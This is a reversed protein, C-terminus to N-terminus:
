GAGSLARRAGRRPLRTVARFARGPPSDFLPQYAGALKLVFSPVGDKGVIAARRLAFRDWSGRDRGSVAAEFGARRAAAIAAPGYAFFPYAFTRVATGTLDELAARSDRMEAFCAAEDLQSLDPHTVTHAGIEVGAQALERIEDATMMRADSGSLWPNPRGILGTVVYVTAPVGYERLLPLLVSHNDEMGDDFSLAVLGPPPGGPGVRAAFDAVTVFTYGADRLLEVQRRFRAPPIRHFHPDAGPRSTGVGHYCLIASRRRRLSRM